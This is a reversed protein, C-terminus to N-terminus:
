KKRSSVNGRVGRACGYISLGLGVGAIISDVAVKSSVAMFLGLM